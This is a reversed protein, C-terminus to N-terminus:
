LMIGDQDAEVLEVVPVRGADAGDEYGVAERRISCTAGRLPHLLGCLVLLLSHLLLHTNTSKM